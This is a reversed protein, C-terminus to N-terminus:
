PPPAIKNAREGQMTRNWADRLEDQHVSAWELVLRRVRRPLSGRVVSLTEIDVSARMGGYVVHFHLPSHDNPHIRIVVGRFRCLEPM